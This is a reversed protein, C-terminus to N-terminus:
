KGRRRGKREHRARETLAIGIAPPRHRSRLSEAIVVLLEPQANTRLLEGGLEPNKHQAQKM